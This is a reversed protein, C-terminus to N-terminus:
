NDIRKLEMFRDEKSRWKSKVEFKQQRAWKMKGIWTFEYNHKEKKTYIKRYYIDLFDLVFKQAEFGAYPAYASQCGAESKLYKRSNVLVNNNFIGNVDFINKETSEDIEGQFVLAHGAILYPEVWLIICEKEIQKDRLLQIVKKEIVTNGVCILILDFSNLETCRNLFYKWANENISNCKMAPYHKLLELKLAEAKLTPLCLHDSGCLHRALNETELFDNDLLTIDDTIGIDIIGKSVYSGISGCGILLCRKDFCVNGDGGRTFLRQMQFNRTKFRKFSRGKNAVLVGKISRQSLKIGYTLLSIELSFICEGVGNDAYLIILGKGSNKSLFGYFQSLDSEPILEQIDKINKLNVLIKKGINVFLARKYVMKKLKVGYSNNIFETIKEKEDAVINYDELWEYRWLLHTTLNKGGLYDVRGSVEAEWFSVTELQYDIINEKNKSDTLLSKARIVSDLADQLFNQPNPLVENTDYLCLRNSTYMHPIMLGNIDNIYLEPFEYPYYLPFKMCLEYKFDELTICINIEDKEADYNCDIGSKLLFEYVEKHLIVIRM